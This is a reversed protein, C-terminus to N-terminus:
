VRRIRQARLGAADARAAGRTRAQPRGRRATLNGIRAIARRGSSCVRVLGAGSSAATLRAGHGATRRPEEGRPSVRAPVRDAHAV